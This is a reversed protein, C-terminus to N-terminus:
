FFRQLSCAIKWQESTTATKNSSISMLQEVWEMIVTPQSYIMKWYQFAGLGPLKDMLDLVIHHSGNNTTLEYRIYQTNIPVLILSPCMMIELAMRWKLDLKQAQKWRVGPAKTSTCDRKQDSCFPVLRQDLGNCLRTQWRNVRCIWGSLKSGYDTERGM